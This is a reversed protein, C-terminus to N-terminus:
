DSTSTNTFQQVLLVKGRPSPQGAHSARPIGFDRGSPKPQRAYRPRILFVPPFTSNEAACLGIEINYMTVPVNMTCFETCGGCEEDAGEPCRRGPLLTKREGNFESKYPHVANARMNIEYSILLSSGMEDLCHYFLDNGM